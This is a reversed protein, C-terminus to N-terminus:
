KAAVFGLRQVVASLERKEAGAPALARNLRIVLNTVPFTLQDRRVPKAFLHGGSESYTEEALLAGGSRISVTVPGGAARLYNEPFFLQMEFVLPGDAPTRLVVESQKAWGAGVGM